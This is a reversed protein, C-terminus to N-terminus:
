KKALVEARLLVTRSRYKVRGPIRVETLEGRAVASQVGGKTMALLTAAETLTMLDEESVETEEPVRKMIHVKM